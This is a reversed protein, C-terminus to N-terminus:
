WFTGIHLIWLPNKIGRSGKKNKQMGLKLLHGPMRKILEPPTKQLEEM